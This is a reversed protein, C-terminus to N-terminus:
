SYTNLTKILLQKAIVKNGIKHKEPLKFHARESSAIFCYDTKEFRNEAFFEHIIPSKILNPWSQFNQVSCAIQYLKKQAKLIYWLIIWNSYICNFNHGALPVGRVCVCVCVCVCKCVQPLVIVISSGRSEWPAKVHCPVEFHKLQARQPPERMSLGKKGFCLWRNQELLWALCNREFFYFSFYCVSKILNTGHVNVHLIYTYM